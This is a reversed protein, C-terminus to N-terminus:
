QTGYFGCPIFCSPSCWFSPDSLSKESLGAHRRDTDQLSDPPLSLFAHGSGGPPRWDQLSPWAFLFMWVCAAPLEPRRARGQRPGRQPGQSSSLKGQAAELWGPPLCSARLHWLDCLKLVSTSAIDKRRKPAHETGKEGVGMHKQSEPSSWRRLSQVYFCYCSSGQGM